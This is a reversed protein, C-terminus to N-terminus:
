AGYKAVIGTLTSIVPRLPTAIAGDQAVIQSGQYTVQYTFMDNGKTTAEVKPLGAFGSDALVQRLNALEAGTLQGSRNVPPKLRVLTFSGDPRVILRDSLGAFGGSRGFEVLVGDIVRTPTAGGPSAPAATGPTASATDAPASPSGPTGSSPTGSPATSTCGTLLLATLLLLRTISRPM